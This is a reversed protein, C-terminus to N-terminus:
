EICCNVIKKVLAKFKGIKKTESKEQEETLEKFKRSIELNAQEIAKEKDSPSDASVTQREESKEVRTFMQMNIGWFLCYLEYAKEFLEYAEKKNGMGLQKTGVEMLRYSAALLHKSICWVEGEYQKIIKGLLTKRIERVEYILDYYYSKKEENDAKAGTFFLHEEIGILNMLAVTLDQDSSIDKKFSPDSLLKDIDMKDEGSIEHLKKTTLKFDKFKSIFTELEEASM